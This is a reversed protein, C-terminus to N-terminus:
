RRAIGAGVLGKNTLAAGGASGTNNAQRARTRREIAGTAAADGGFTADVGTTSVDLNTGTEGIGEQFVDQLQNLSQLNANIGAQTIPQDAIMEARRQDISIGFADASGATYAARSARDLANQARDPNLYYAALAADGQGVGYFQEFRARIAPPTDHVMAFSAGLRGRLEDTSVGLVMLNHFDSYDDRMWVPLGANRMLGEATQEYAVVEDVSMVRIPKGQSSALRQDLIVKFRTKWIDTQEIAQRLEDGTDVGQQMKEWLWGGPMGDAGTQFLSQLGLTNLYASLSSYTSLDAPVAPAASPVPDPSPQPGTGQPDRVAGTGSGPDAPTSIPDAPTRPVPRAATGGADASGGISTLAM